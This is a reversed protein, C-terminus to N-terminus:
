QIGELFSCVQRLWPSNPYNVPLSRGYALKKGNSSPRNCFRIRFSYDSSNSVQVPNTIHIFSAASDYGGKGFVEDEEFCCKLYRRIEYGIPPVSGALLEQSLTYRSNANSVMKDNYFRGLDEKLEKFDSSSLTIDRSAFVPCGSPLKPCVLPRKYDATVKVWGLGNQPAAGLWGYHHVFGMLKYIENTLSKSDLKLDNIENGLTDLNRDLSFVLKFTWHYPALLKTPRTSVIEQTGQKITEVQLRLLSKWGTCGFLRIVPGATALDSTLKERDIGEDLDYSPYNPNKPNTQWAEMAKILWYQYRLSGRLGTVILHKNARKDNGTVIPSLTEITFSFSQM